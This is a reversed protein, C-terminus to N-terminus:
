RLEGGPRRRRRRGRTTRAAQAKAKELTTDAAARARARVIDAAEQGRRPARRTASRVTDDPRTAADGPLTEGRAAPEARRRAATGRTAAGTAAPRARRRAPRRASQATADDRRRATTEDDSPRSPQTTEDRRRREPPQPPQSSSARRAARATANRRRREPARRRTADEHDMPLWESNAHVKRTRAYNRARLWDELEADVSELLLAPAHTRLVNELGRLAQGEHREVDLQVCVVRRERYPVVDDGRVTTVNRRLVTDGRRRRVIDEDGAYGSADVIKSQGGAGTMGAIGNEDSLAANILVVNELGNEARTREACAYNEVVPEFAHVVDAVNALTHLMDGFYTGAHVADGGACRRKFWKHTEPEWVRGRTVYSVAPKTREHTPACVLAGMYKLM